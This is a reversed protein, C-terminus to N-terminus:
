LEVKAHIKPDHEVDPQTGSLYAKGAEILYKIGSTGSNDWYEGRHADFRLLILRPDNKGDPFWTRWAENWIANVKAPDHLTSVYGSLSVFQANSQLTVNAHNDNAIEDMKASDRQTLFWVRGGEEVDAVAMPRAHLEGDTTRTALMACPFGELLEHLKKATNTNM